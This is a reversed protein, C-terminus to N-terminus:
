LLWGCFNSQIYFNTCWIKWFQLRQYMLYNTHFINKIWCGDFIVISGGCHYKKQTDSISSVVGDILFPYRLPMYSNRFQTRVNKNKTETLNFANQTVCFPLFVDAEVFLNDCINESCTEFTHFVLTVYDLKQFLIGRIFLQKHHCIGPLNSYWLM